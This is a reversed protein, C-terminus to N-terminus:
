LNTTHYKEFIPEHKLKKDNMKQNNCNYKKKRLIGQLEEHNKIYLKQKSQLIKEM